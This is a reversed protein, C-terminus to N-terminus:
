RKGRPRSDDIDEIVEWIGRASEIRPVIAVWDRPDNACFTADVGGFGGGLTAGAWADLRGAAGGDLAGGGGAGEPFALEAGAATFELEPAVGGPILGMARQSTFGNNKKTSKNFIRVFYLRPRGGGGSISRRYCSAGM